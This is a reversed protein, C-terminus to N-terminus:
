VAGELLRASKEGKQRVKAQWKRFSFNRRRMLSELSIGSHELRLHSSLIKRLRYFPLYHDEEWKRRCALFGELIEEWDCGHVLLSRLDLLDDWAAQPTVPFLEEVVKSATLRWLRVPVVSM